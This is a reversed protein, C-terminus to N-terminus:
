ACPRRRAGCRTGPWAGPPPTRGGRRGRAGAAARLGLHGVAGLRVDASGAALSAHWSTQAAAPQAWAGLAVTTCAGRLLARRYPRYSM